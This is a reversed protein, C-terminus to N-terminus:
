DHYPPCCNAFYGIVAIIEMSPNNSPHKKFLWNSSLLSLQIYESQFFLICISQNLFSKTEKRSTYKLYFTSTYQRDISRCNQNLRLLGYCVGVEAAQGGVIYTRIYSKSIRHDAVACCQAYPELCGIVWQAYFSVPTLSLANRDSSLSYLLLPLPRLPSFCPPWYNLIINPAGTILALGVASGDESCRAGGGGCAGGDDSLM